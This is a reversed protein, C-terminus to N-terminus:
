TARPIEGRCAQFHFAALKAAIGTLAAGARDNVVAHRDVGAHGHGGVGDARLDRRDFAQGVAILQMGHLLREDVGARHLAAIARRAVDNGHFRQEVSGGFRRRFVDFFRDGAVDAAAGAVVLDDVRDMEGGIADCPPCLDHGFSFEFDDTRARRAHAADLADDALANVADVQHEFVLQVARDQAALVGVRLDDADVGAFCLFNGADMGHHGGGIRRVHTVAATIDVAMNERAVFDAEHAVRDGGDGRFRRGDGPLREFFDLDDVFRQRHGEIGFFRGLRVRRGQVVVHRQRFSNGRVRLEFINAAMGDDMDAIGFFRHGFRIDHDVFNVFGLHDVRLIQLRADGRRLHFGVATEGNPGVGLRGEGHALFYGLHEAQREVVHAHDGGAQAATEAALAAADGGAGGDLRDAAQQRDLGLPRHHDDEVLGLFRNGRGDTGARSHIDLGAHFFVAGDDGAGAFYKVVGAAVGAEAHLGAAAAGVHEAAPIQHGVAM